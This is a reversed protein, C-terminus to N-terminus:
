VAAADASPPPGIGIQPESHRSVFLCYAPASRTSCKKKSANAFFCAKCREDLVPLGHCLTM